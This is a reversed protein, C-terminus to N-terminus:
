KLVIKGTTNNYEWYTQTAGTGSDAKHLEAGGDVIFNSAQGTYQFEGIDITGEVVSRNWDALFDEELILALARNDGITTATAILNDTNNSVATIDLSKPYFATTFAVTALYDVGSGVFSVKFDGGRILRKGYLTTVGQRVIAIASKENSILADDQIGSFKPVAVAAMIGIIVIVFVLEIMSFASKSKVM